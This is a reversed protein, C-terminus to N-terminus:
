KKLREEFKIDSYKDCWFACLVCLLVFPIEDLVLLACLAGIGCFVILIILVAKKNFFDKM